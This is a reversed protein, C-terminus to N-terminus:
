AETEILNLIESPGNRMRELVEESPIQRILQETERDFVQIVSINADNDFQFRLKRSISSSGVNLKEAIERLAEADRAPDAEESAKEARPAVQVARAEAGAVERRESGFPQVPQARSPEPRLVPLTNTLEAKM